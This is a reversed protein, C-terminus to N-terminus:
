KNTTLVHGAKDKLQDSDISGTIKLSYYKMQNRAALDINAEASNSPRLIAMKAYENMLLDAPLFHDAFVEVHLSPIMAVEDNGHTVKRCQPIEVMECAYGLGEFFAQIENDTIHIQVIM